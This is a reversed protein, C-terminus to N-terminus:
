DARRVTPDKSDTKKSAAFAKTSGEEDAVLWKKAGAHYYVIKKDQIDIYVGFGAGDIKM